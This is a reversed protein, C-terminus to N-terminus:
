ETSAKGVIPEAESVKDVKGSEGSSEDKKKPSVKKGRTAEISGSVKDMAECAVEWRDTRINYAPLVGEKRETFIEPAGDKIPEGNKMIRRVKWEIPEGELLEVSTLKSKVRERKIYGM